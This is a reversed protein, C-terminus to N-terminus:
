STEGAGEETGGPELEEAWRSLYRALEEKYDARDVSEPKATKAGDDRDLAILTELTKALVSLARADKEDTTAGPKVARAELDATQRDFVHYLRGIMRTRRAEASVATGPGNGSFAPRVPAGQPRKWDDQRKWTSILSPRVDLRKAIEYQSLLSGEVWRRADAKLAALAALSLVRRETRAFNSIPRLGQAHAEAGAVAPVMAPTEDVAPTAVPPGAAGNPRAATAADVLTM